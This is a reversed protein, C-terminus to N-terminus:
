TLTLRQYLAQTNLAGDFGAKSVAVEAAAGFADVYEEIESIDLARPVPANADKAIASAGVIDPIMGAMAQRGIAAIQLFIFSGQAHVAKVVKQLSETYIEGDVFASCFVGGEM